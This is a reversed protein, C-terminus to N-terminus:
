PPLDFRVRLTQRGTSIWPVIRVVRNSVPLSTLRSGVSNRRGPVSSWVPSKGIQAALLLRRNTSPCTRMEARMPSRAKKISKRTVGLNGEGDEALPTQLLKPEQPIMSAALHFEEPHTM